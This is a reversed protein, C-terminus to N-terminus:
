EAGETNTATKGPLARVMEIQKDTLTNRTKLMAILSDHTKKGSALL